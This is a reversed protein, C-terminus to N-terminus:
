IGSMINSISTLSNVELDNAEDLLLKAKEKLQKASKMASDMAILARKQIEEPPVPILVKRLDKGSIRPRGIGTICGM